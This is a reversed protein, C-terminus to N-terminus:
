LQYRDVAEELRLEYERSFGKLWTRTSGELFEPAILAEDGCLPILLRTRQREKSWVTINKDYVFTDERAIAGDNMNESTTTVKAQQLINRSLERVFMSHCQFTFQAVEGDTAAGSIQVDVNHM